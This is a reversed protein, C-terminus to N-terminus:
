KWRTTTLACLGMLTAAVTVVLLVGWVDGMSVGSM